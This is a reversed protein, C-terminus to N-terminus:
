KYLGDLGGFGGVPAFKKKLSLNEHAPLETQLLNHHCGVLWGKSGGHSQHQKSVHMFKDAEGRKGLIM